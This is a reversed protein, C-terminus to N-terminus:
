RAVVSAATTVAAPAVGRWMVFAASAFAIRAGTVGAAVAMGLVGAVAFLRQVVAVVSAAAFRLLSDRFEGFMFAPENKGAFRVLFGSWWVSIVDIIADLGDQM